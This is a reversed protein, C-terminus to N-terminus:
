VEASLRLFALHVFRVVTGDTVMPRWVPPQKPLEAETTFLRVCCIFCLNILIVYVPTDVPSSFCM